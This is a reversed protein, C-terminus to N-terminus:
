FFFFPVHGCTVMNDPLTRKKKAASSGQQHTGAKELQQSCAERQPLKENWLVSELYEPKGLQPEWAQNSQPMHSRGLGPVSGMNGANASLNKAVSGGSSGRLFKIYRFRDIMPWIPPHPSPHCQWLGLLYSGDVVSLEGPLVGFVQLISADGPLPMRPPATASDAIWSSSPHFLSPLVPLHPPSNWVLGPLTLFACKWVLAEM